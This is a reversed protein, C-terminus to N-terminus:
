GAFACWQQGQFIIKGWSVKGVCIMGRFHDLFHGLVLDQYSEIVRHKLYLSMISIYDDHNIFLRIYFFFTMIIRYSDNYSM